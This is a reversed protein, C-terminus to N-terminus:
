RCLEIEKKSICQPRGFLTVCRTACKNSANQPHCVHAKPVCVREELGGCVVSSLAVCSANSECDADTPCLDCM